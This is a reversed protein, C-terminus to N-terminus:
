LKIKEILSEFNETKILYNDNILKKSPFSKLSKFQGILIFKIGIEFATKLDNQSDGIFIDNKSVNKEQLHESKSKNSALIDDFYTILSNRKLFLIIEEKEGGSLIYIQTHKNKEKIMVLFNKLGVTPTAKLFFQHCEASYITMIKLVEDHEFFRSLKKERAMGANKNFYNIANINRENKGLIRFISQEIALEKFLNSDVIVGDFDIFLKQCKEFYSM